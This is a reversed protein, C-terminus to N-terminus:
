EEDFELVAFEKKVNPIIRWKGAKVIMRISLCQADRKQANNKNSYSAM